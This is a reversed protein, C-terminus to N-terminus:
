RSVAGKVQCGILLMRWRTPQPALRVIGRQEGGRYYDNLRERYNGESILQLREELSGFFPSTSGLEDSLTVPHKALDIADTMGNAIECATEITRFTRSACLRVFAPSIM